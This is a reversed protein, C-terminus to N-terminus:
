FQTNKVNKLECVYFRYKFLIFNFAGYSNCNKVTDLELWALIEM